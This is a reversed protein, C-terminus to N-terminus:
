SAHNKQTRTLSVTQNLRPFLRGFRFQQIALLFFICVKLLCFLGDLTETPRPFHPRRQTVGDHTLWPDTPHENSLQDSNHKLTM